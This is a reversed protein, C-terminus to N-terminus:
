TLPNDKRFLNEGADSMSMIDPKVVRSNSPATEHLARRSNKKEFLTGESSEMEKNIKPPAAVLNAVDNEEQTKGNAGILTSLGLGGIKM